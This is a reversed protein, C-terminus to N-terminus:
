RSRGGFADEAIDDAWHEELFEELEAAGRGGGSSGIAAFPLERRESTDVGLHARLADRAIESRSRRRRRAERDLAASLEDPVSITIRTM